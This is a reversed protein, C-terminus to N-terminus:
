KLKGSTKLKGRSADSEGDRQWLFHKLWDLCVIVVTPRPLRSDLSMNTNLYMKPEPKLVTPKFFKWCVVPNSFGNTLASVTTGASIRVYFSYTPMHYACMLCWPLCLKESCAMLCLHLPQHINDRDAAFRECGAWDAGHCSPTKYFKEFDCLSSVTDAVKGRLAAIASCREKVQQQFRECHHCVMVAHLCKVYWVCKLRLLPNLRHPTYLRLRM